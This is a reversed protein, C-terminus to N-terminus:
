AELLPNRTRLGAFRSFDRDATWLERVGHSLCLAAIRADHVMPGQLQAQTILERLQSWHRPNESLLLLTPSELWASIQDLAVDVPTPVAFIRRHTVVGYFEHLCPWAIAWASAGEALWALREAARAHFRSEARHAYVLLNTDVAIM